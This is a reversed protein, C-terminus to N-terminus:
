FIDIDAFTFKIKELPMAPGFNQFLVSFSPVVQYSKCFLKHLNTGPSSHFQVQRIGLTKALNKVKNMVFSFSTEEVDEMDGIILNSKFSVWLKSKNIRIVETESYTKHILYEAGRDIGVFGNQLVSSPFGAVGTKYKKLIFRSYRKYLKQLLLNKTSLSQLPLSRVPILFCDMKETEKWGLKIAGHYSNQNPFGFVLQIGLERCLGFTKNSLDMFMGKFRYRPHTMTDASQAALIKRDEFKMFCPIVGYYAVPIGANYAIFGVYEVGTYATDYKKVYYDEGAPAYVASHLTALDKLNSQSLRAVSYEKANNIIAGSTQM